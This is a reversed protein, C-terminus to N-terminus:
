IQICILVHGDPDKLGVMPTHRIQDSLNNCELILRDCAIDQFAIASEPSNGRPSRYGLLEIHPNSHDSPHLAVVEVVDDSLADLWGQEQGFNTQSIGIRMGLVTTYFAISSRIDRVSIASHDIGEAALPLPNDSQRLQILELPHGDPDRFKFATAGGSSLPLVIPREIGEADRSIPGPMPASGPRNLRRHAADIDTCRIAFHQFCLDAANSNAPYPRALPGVEVLEIEEQGFKLRQAMPLRGAFGFLDALSTDIRYRTGIPMFGLRKQYFAISRDLDAVNRSICSLRIVQCLSM